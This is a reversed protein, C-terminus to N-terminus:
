FFNIISRVLGYSDTFLDAIQYSFLFFVAYFIGPKNMSFEMIVKIVRNNMLFVNGIIAIVIGIIAGVIIDTPYHLGLYVRPLAIFLSTYILAWIGIKKSMFYLGIALAFYLIAHDSPMSSLMVGKNIQATELVGHPMKFDLNVEHIPRFRFPLILALTKGVFIAVISILLTILIQERVKKQQSKGEKFWMFWMLSVMIGGKFLKNNAILNVIEDFLISNQSFQNLFSIISYDFINM